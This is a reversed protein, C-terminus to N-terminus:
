CLVFPFHSRMKRYMAVDGKQAGRGDVHLMLLVKNYKLIYICINCVYMCYKCAYMCVYM